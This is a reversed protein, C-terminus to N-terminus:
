IIISVILVEFLSIFGIEDNISCRKITTLMKMQKKDTM